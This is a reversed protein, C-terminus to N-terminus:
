SNIDGAALILWEGFHQGGVLPSRNVNLVVDNGLIEGRTSQNETVSQINVDPAVRRRIAGNKFIEETFVVYHTSNGGGDIQAYNNADSAAGTLFARVKLSTEALGASITVNALGTPITYGQQWFTLPDGDAAWAWQPGADEKILGLKKYAAPLVYNPAFGEVPTPITTGIPAFGISGTVPVGVAAIDNGFADTSM